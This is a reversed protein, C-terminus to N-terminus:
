SMANGVERGDADVCLITARQNTLAIGDINKPPVGSKEAGTSAYLLLCGCHIAPRERNTRGLVAGLSNPRGCAGKIEGRLSVVASKVVTTGCDIAALFKEDHGSEKPAQSFEM